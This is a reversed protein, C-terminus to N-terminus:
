VQVELMLNYRKESFETFPLYFTVAANNVLIDIPGLQEVTEDVMRRRDDSKSIDAQVPVITGGATRVREVTEALSGVYKPDPDLTRAAASVHAGAAALREAIAAGIGRSAGTVLAVRGEVDKNNAISMRM